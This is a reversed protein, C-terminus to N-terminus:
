FKLIMYASLYLLIIFYRKIWEASECDRGTTIKIKVCTTQVDSRRYESKLILCYLVLRWLRNVPRISGQHSRDKKGKKRFSFVTVMMVRKFSARATLIALHCIEIGFDLFRAYKFVVQCIFNQRAYKLMESIKNLLSHLSFIRWKPFINEFFNRSRSDFISSLICYFARNWGKQQTKFNPMNKAYKFSLKPM